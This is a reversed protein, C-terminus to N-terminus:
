CPQATLEVERLLRVLRQLSVPKRLYHIVRLDDTIARLAHLSNGTIFLVPVHRASQLERALDAGTREGALEWDSVLIDPEFDAACRLADGASGVARNEFGHDSLFSALADRAGADDEVILVRVASQSSDGDPM